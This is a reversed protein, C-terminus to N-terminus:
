DNLSVGASEFTAMDRLFTTASLLLPWVLVAGTGEGLRLDFDILPRVGLARVAKAHGSEASAHSFVCYDLVDPRLRSAVVAAATAIFGDVVILRRNAAAGLMAGAMMGIEYGGFAALADVPDVADAHRAAVAHLIKRKHALGADDHGAGRGICEDLPLGLLRSCLLASPSTNGIGMEGPLIAAFGQAALEDALRAGRALCEVAEDRTMAPENLANKTGPGMRLDVLDPHPPFVGDVGCDVVKLPLGHQRSFANIAAGGALFNHVMQVTIQKPCPSVREDALGHDGAFVLVAGNGSLTPETTAQMLGLRLALEELRGLSGLPKTKNNIRARLAPELERALPPIEPLTWVTPATTNM